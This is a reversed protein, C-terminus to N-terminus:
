SRSFFKQYVMASLMATSAGLLAGGIVDTTWHEGLYVRSVLMIIDYIIIGSLIIFKPAIGLRKSTLFLLIIIVSVFIARGVHGSPYSFESSVYFQPFDAIQKTRLMFHPPPFHEVFTKGFLELIHFVVYSGLVFIGRLKRRIVLLLFLFLTVIEFSGIFSFWSFLDDLRRPINDQLRVTTDFDFQTFLDKHVIYSFLVFLFFLFFGMMLLMLGKLM